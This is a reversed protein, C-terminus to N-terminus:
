TYVKWGREELNIIQHKKKKMKDIIRKSNILKNIKKLIAQDEIDFLSPCIQEFLFELEEVEFLFLYDTELFYLVTNRNKALLREAIEEKLAIKAKIDGLYSLRILLPFSLSTHLINVNYHNEVWASINSCHGIFEQKPELIFKNRENTRGYYEFVEDISKFGDYEPIAEAELNLLLYKCQDFREGNIYINTKDNELKLTIQENIKYITSIKVM